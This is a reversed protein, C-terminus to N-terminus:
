DTRTLEDAISAATPLQCEEALWGWQGSANCEVFFWSDFAVVEVPVAVRHHIRQEDLGDQSGPRRSGGPCARHAHATAHLSIILRGRQPQVRQLLDGTSNARGRHRGTEPASRADRIAPQHNSAPCRQGSDPTTSMRGSALAPISVVVYSVRAAECRDSAASSRREHNSECPTM